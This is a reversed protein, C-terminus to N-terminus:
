EITMETRQQEKEKNDTKDNGDTDEGDEESKNNDTSEEDEEDTQEEDETKFVRDKGDEFPRVYIDDTRYEMVAEEYASINKNIVESVFSIRYEVNETNGIYIDLRNEAIIRIDATNTVDIYTTRNLLQAKLLANCLKIAEDLKGEDVVEIRKGVEVSKAEVGELLPISFPKQVNQEGVEQIGDEQQNESGEANETDTKEEEKDKTNEDNNEEDTTKESKKNKELLATGENLITRVRGDNIIELATGESDAVICELGRMIYFAPTRETIRICIKNPFVRKVTAEKVIPIEEVNHRARGINSLLINKGTELQSASIIDAQNVNVAGECYVEDVNLAPVMLLVASVVILVLITIRIGMRLAFPTTTKKKRMKRRKGM